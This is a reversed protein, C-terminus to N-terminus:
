YEYIKRMEKIKEVINNKFEVPELVTCNSGFSLIRQTALFENHYVGEVIYGNDTSDIVRENDELMDLNINKIIFKINTQLPEINSKKFNRSCISMIRRLNLVISEQKKTDYGYLYIKENNNVLQQVVIEKETADNSNPKKYLVSLTRNHKCDVLLDKIMEVDYYKLNSIGLLSEKTSEDCIHFAIKKFLDDYEILTLIDAKETTKDYVKKLAKLEKEPIKLAFPHKSLVYKHNTKACARSIECGMAKITNLDIRLIDDSHSEEMINLETFARRIEELSRPRVILLGVLVIARMGTLSIQNLETKEAIKFM